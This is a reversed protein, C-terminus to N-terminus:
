EFKILTSLQASQLDFRMLYTDNNKSAYLCISDQIRVPSMYSKFFFKTDRQFPRGGNGRDWIFVDDQIFIYFLGNHCFSITTEGDPISLSVPEFCTSDLSFRESTEGCDKHTGGFIYIYRQYYCPQFHARPLIMRPLYVWANELLDHMEVIPSEGGRLGGFLYVSGEVQILGPYYHVELTNALPVASKDHCDISITLKDNRTGTALCNGNLLFCWATYSDSPHMDEIYVQSSSNFPFPSMYVASPDLLPLYQIPEQAPALTYIRKYILIDMHRRIVWDLEESQTHTAILFRLKSRQESPTLSVLAQLEASPPHSPQTQAVELLAEEMISELRKTDEALRKLLKVKYRHVALVIENLKEVALTQVARVEELKVLLIETL